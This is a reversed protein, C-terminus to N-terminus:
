WRADELLDFPRHRRHDRRAFTQDWQLWRSSTFTSGASVAVLARAPGGQRTQALSVVDDRGDGDVDTVALDIPATNLLAPQGRQRAPPHTGDELDFLNLVVLQTSLDAVVLEDDGDADIDAARLFM